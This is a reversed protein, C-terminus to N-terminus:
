QVNAVMTALTLFREQASNVNCTVSNTVDNRDRGWFVTVAVNALALGTVNAAVVRLRHYPFDAPINCSLNAGPLDAFIEPTSLEELKEQALFYAAIRERDRQLYRGGQFFAVGLTSFAIAMVPIAIIVEILSMAKPKNWM